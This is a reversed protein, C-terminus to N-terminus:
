LKEHAHREHEQVLRIFDAQEYMTLRQWIEEFDASQLDLDTMREELDIRWRQQEGEIWHHYKDEASDPHRIEGSPLRLDSKDKVFGEFDGLPREQAEIEYGNVLELLRRKERTSLQSSSSEKLVAQTGKQVNDLYFSASCTQHAKSKYCALSCYIQRCRPCSYKGYERKCFACIRPGQGVSSTSDDISSQIDANVSELVKSM